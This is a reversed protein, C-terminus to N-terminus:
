VQNLLYIGLAYLPILFVVSAITFYILYQGKKDQYERAVCKYSILSAMSAILTGLGGLDVGYLLAQYRDTFGSLLIAAPVNSIIQSFLVGTLLEQGKLHSALYVSIGDIKEMNGVFIFFAVFTLLLSYDVHWLTKRDMLFVAFLTFVLAYSYRLVDAVVLLNVFFLLLYFGILMVKKPNRKTAAEVAEETAVIPQKNRGTLLLTCLLLLIGSTATLPLMLLLFDGLGIGMVDYLYLNQPNGIPTLMSGLNAALTQLTVVPIVLKRADAMALATLALPVFTILAVDNTIIMSFFFCLLVLILSIQMSNKVKGIMAKAIRDFVLLSRLGEMVVMLGLLIVLVRFNIYELYSPSPKIFLMSLIALLLAVSLVTEKKIFAKIHKM